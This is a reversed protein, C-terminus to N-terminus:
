GDLRGVQWPRPKGHFCVVRAGPPMTGHYNKVHVKYSVVQGPLVDQWRQEANWVTRMFEQDGRYRRQKPAGDLWAHWMEPRRGVPLFMVGSAVNALQYFDSLLTLRDMGSVDTLDGVIVTDLDFYLINGLRELDPRFLEMKSWWSKWSYVLPEVYICNNPGQPYHLPVDTLCVFHLPWDAPWYKEVGAYLEYVHEPRYEGGSRLVSVVTPVNM